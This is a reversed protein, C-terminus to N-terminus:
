EESALWKAFDLDGPRPVQTNWRGNGENSSSAREFTHAPVSPVFPPADVNWTTAGVWSAAVLELNGPLIAKLEGYPWLALEIRGNDLTCCVSGCAGNLEEARKLGVIKM